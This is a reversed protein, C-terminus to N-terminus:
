PGFPFAATHCQCRDPPMCAFVSGHDKETRRRESGHSVLSGGYSGPRSRGRISWTPGVLESRSCSRSGDSVKSGNQFGDAPADPHGCGRGRCAAKVDLSGLTASRRVDLGWFARGHGHAGDPMATAAHASGAEPGQHEPARSQVERLGGLVAQAAVLLPGQDRM